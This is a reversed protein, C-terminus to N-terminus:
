VTEGQFRELVRERRFLNSAVGHTAMIAKELYSLYSVVKQTSMIM